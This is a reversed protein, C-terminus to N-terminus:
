CTGAGEIFGSRCTMIYLSPDKPCLPRWHGMCGWPTINKRVTIVLVGRWGGRAVSLYAKFLCEKPSTFVERLSSTLSIWLGSLTMCVVQDSVVATLTKFSRRLLTAETHCLNNKMRCCCRTLLLLFGSVWPEWSAPSEPTGYMFSTCTKSSSEGSRTRSFRDPARM